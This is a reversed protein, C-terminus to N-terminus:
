NAFEKIRKKAATMSRKFDTYFEKSKGKIKNVVISGEFGFETNDVMEYLAEENYGLSKIGENVIDLFKEFQEETAGYMKFNAVHVKLGRDEAMKTKVTVKSIIGQKKTSEKKQKVIKFVVLNQSKKTKYAIAKISEDEKNTKVVFKELQEIAALLAKSSKDSVLFMENEKRGESAEEILGLLKEKMNVRM